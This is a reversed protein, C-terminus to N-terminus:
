NISNLERIDSQIDAISRIWPQLSRLPGPLEEIAKTADSHNEFQGLVVVFWPKEQFRTEFYGRQSSVLQEEIFRQVNTESHSGMIQVTYSSGPYELLSKEFDSIDIESIETTSIEVEETIAATIKPESVQEELNSAESSDTVTETTLEQSQALPSEEELMMPEIESALEEMIPDLNAKASISVEISTESAALSRQQEIRPDPDLVVFTFVLLVFLTAAIVWYHNGSYFFSPLNDSSPRTVSTEELANVVLANITGPIGNASNHINGLDSASIPLEGSYGAEALKFKVYGLTDEGGLEAIEFEILSQEMETTLVSRLMNTLQTEGFMLIHIGSTKGARLFTVLDLVDSGLEHADDIVIMLSKADLDLQAAFRQISVVASDTEEDNLDVPIQEGLKELFQSKNMFLTAPILVCVTENGFSQCFINALTTKGCGLCGTVTMISQSYKSHEILQDLLLQRDGGAFFEKSNTAPQFPDFTLSLSETYNNM